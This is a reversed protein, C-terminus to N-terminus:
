QESLILYIRAVTGQPMMGGMSMTATGEDQQLSQSTLFDQYQKNEKM